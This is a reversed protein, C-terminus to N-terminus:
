YLPLGAKRVFFCDDPMEDPMAKECFGDGRGVAICIVFLNRGEPRRAPLIAGLRAREFLSQSAPWPAGIPPKRPRRHVSRTAVRDISAVPKLRCYAGHRASGQLCCHVGRGEPRPRHCAPLAPFCVHIKRFICSRSPQGGVRVAEKVLRKILMKLRIKVITLTLM